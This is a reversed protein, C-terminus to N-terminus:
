YSKIMFQEYLNVRRHIIGIILIKRLAKKRNTAADDNEKEIRSSREEEHGLSLLSM